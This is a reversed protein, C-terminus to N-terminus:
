RHPPGSLWAVTAMRGTTADRRYSYYHESTVAACIGSLEIDRVGARYLRMRALGPLDALWKAEGGLPRAAFYMAAQADGDVFARYVEAGVEFRAQSIAPGIWARWGQAHPARARLAAMVQEIVGEALGRWGAHAVGLANGGTDAIVVPLCDATMIALVRGPRTTVAADAEPPQAPYGAGFTDADCVQAGHVQRLWLPEDPLAARLVQRNAQVNAPEDGAHLGLNFSTWPGRSVGGQRTTCFYDVGPWPQGSVFQPAGSQKLQGM